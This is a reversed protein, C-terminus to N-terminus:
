MFYIKKIIKITDKISIEFKGGINIVQGNFCNSKCAKEFGSVTDKIYNFNRKPNINGLTLNKEEILFQSIITPIIARLSQRPGFTNFPRM